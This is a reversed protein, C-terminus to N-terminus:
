LDIPWLRMLETGSHQRITIAFYDTANEYEREASLCQGLHLLWVRHYVHFGKVAATFSFESDEERAGAM